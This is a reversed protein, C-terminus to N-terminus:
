PKRGVGGYGFARWPEDLFIDNPTDPRWQPSYVLGPEVLELGEFFQAIQTKSRHHAASALKLLRDAEEASTPKYDDM